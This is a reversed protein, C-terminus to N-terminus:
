FVVMELEKAVKLERVSEFVKVLETSAEEVIGRVATGISEVTTAIVSSEVVIDEVTTCTEKPAADAVVTLSWVAELGEASAIDKSVDIEDVAISDCVAATTVILREDDIRPFVVPGKTTM